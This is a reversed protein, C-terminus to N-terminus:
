RSLGWGVLGGLAGAQEANDANQSEQDAANQLYQQHAKQAAVTTQYRKTEQKGKFQWLVTDTEKYTHQELKITWTGFMKNDLSNAVIALQEEIALKSTDFHDADLASEIKGVQTTSAKIRITKTIPNTSIDYQNQSTFESNALIQNVNKPVYVGWYGILAVLVVIIGGLWYKRHPSKKTLREKLGTAQQNFRQKDLKPKAAKEATLVQGCTPCFKTGKDVKTGCKPCFM